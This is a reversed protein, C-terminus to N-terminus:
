IKFKQLTRLIDDKSEFKMPGLVKSLANVKKLNLKGIRFINRKAYRVLEPDKILLKMRFFINEYRMYLAMFYTFPIFTLTLIIPLLFSHLSSLSLFDRYNIITKIVAFVIFGYGIVALVVTTFQNVVEYKKDTESFANIMALFILIPNM